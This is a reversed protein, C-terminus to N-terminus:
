VIIFRFFLVFSSPSQNSNCLIQLNIQSSNVDKSNQIKWDMFMTHRNIQIKKSKKLWYKWYKLMETNKSKCRLIEM